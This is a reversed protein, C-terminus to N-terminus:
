QAKGSKRNDNVAVDIQKIFDEATLNPLGDWTRIVNGKEDLLVTYPFDGNKNYTEALAENQKIQQSLLKKTDRPFDANIWVLNKEAYSNFNATSFIAKKMKMCPICWDSGSFNILIFKHEVSAIAEAKQLLSSDTTASSAFSISTLFIMFIVKRM